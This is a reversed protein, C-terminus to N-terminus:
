PSAIGVSESLEVSFDRGTNEPEPTIEEAPISEGEPINDISSDDSTELNSSSAAGIIATIIIVIIIGIVIGKNV